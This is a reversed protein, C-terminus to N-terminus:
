VLSRMEKLVRIVEALSEPTDTNFIRVDHFAGRMLGALVKGPGVEVFIRAGAEYVRVVEDWWRVPSFIQRKLYDPVVEPDPYIDATLNALVPLNFPRPRLHRLHSSFLSEAVPAMLRSHFPGGVRLKVARQHRKHISQAYRLARDVAPMEGALVVQTPHNFNVIELLGADAGKRRVVETEEPHQFGILAVMGGQGQPVAEDMLRGRERVVPLAEQITLCGAYVLAAYEGLSHGLAFDASVGAETLARAIGVELALLAPQTVMTNTLTEEPGEFMWKQLPLKLIDEAEKLTAGVVPFPAVLDQGM